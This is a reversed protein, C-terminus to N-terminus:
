AARAPPALSGAMGWRAIVTEAVLLVLAAVVFWGWLERGYRAERVRRALDEGARVIQVRGPPFARTLASEPIPELDSERPDPNVAFTNRTAGARLVRYLGPRELPASLLRAAGGAAVLESPVERGEEDEIRWVGTTAPAAYRDGPVLSAAATGRGLVKVAQHVLPLFAGSVAFDSASPDLPALLVMVRPSEVLAPHARDFELLTRAGSAGVSFDRILEFRAASLPEGPRAPFGALAPHGATARLLRWASGAPSRIAAGLSGAGMEGLVSNNWFMADARAGFALLVAGGSRYYDFAAQLEASGLRELDNLVLV